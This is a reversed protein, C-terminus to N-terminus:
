KCRQALGETLSGIRPLVHGALREAVGMAGTFRREDVPRDAGAEVLCRRTPRLALSNDHAVLTDAQGEGFQLAFHVPKGSAQQRKAQPGTIANADPRRVVDGPDERLAGCFAPSIRTLM